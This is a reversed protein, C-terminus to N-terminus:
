KSTFSITDIDIWWLLNSLIHEADDILFPKRNRSGLYTAKIKEKNDYCIPTPISLWLDKALNMIHKIRNRSPVIIIKWTEASLKVLHTTKWSQRWWCIYNIWYRNRNVDTTWFEKLEEFFIWLRYAWQSIPKWWIEQQKHLCFSTEENVTKGDCFELIKKLEPWVIWTFFEVFIKSVQISILGWQPDTSIYYVKQDKLELKPYSEVIVVDFYKSLDSILVNWEKKYIAVSLKKEILFSKIKEAATTKFSQRPWYINIIM